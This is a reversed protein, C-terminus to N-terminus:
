CKPENCISQRVFGVTANIASVLKVKIPEADRLDGSVAYCNLAAAEAVILCAHLTAASGKIKHCVQRVLLPNQATFAEDIERIWLPAQRLFLEVLIEFLSDQNATYSRLAKVDIFVVSENRMM